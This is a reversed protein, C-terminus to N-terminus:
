SLNGGQQNVKCTAFKSNIFCTEKESGFRVANTSNKLIKDTRSLFLVICFLIIFYRKYKKLYSENYDVPNVSGVLM